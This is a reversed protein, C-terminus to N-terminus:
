LEKFLSEFGRLIFGELAPVEDALAYEIPRVTGGGGRSAGFYAINALQGPSGAGSEPGIESEFVTATDQLIDYSVAPTVGKFWKSSKFDKAAANKINLSAKKLSPKVHTLLRASALSDALKGMEASFTDDSVLKM